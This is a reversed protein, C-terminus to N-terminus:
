EVIALDFDIKKSIENKASNFNNCEIVEFDWNGLYTVFLDLQEKDDELVLIKPM